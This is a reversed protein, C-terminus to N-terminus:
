PRPTPALTQTPEPTPAQTITVEVYQPLVDKVQLETLDPAGDTNITVTPRVQHTGVGLGGLDLVASIRDTQLEDLLVSPGTLIVDILPVFQSVQLGEQLRQARLPLEVTTGGTVADIGVTVLVEYPEGQPAGMVSVGEPLNLEIRAAVMRDAGTVDLDERVEVLSGLEEITAPPGVLTVTSPLVNVSSVFYGRAPQGATRVRVAVERYDERKEVLVQVRVSGPSVDVSEVVRGESDVPQLTVVRDVDARQGAVSIEGTVSVVRDIESAPGSVTAENPNASPASARYGLPIDTEGALVIEVPRLSTALREVRVTMAQPHVSVITVTPDSVVIDIPVVHVGTTLDSWDVTAVFDDASLTEWSSAFARLRVRVTEASGNMVALDDPKGLVDVPIQVPFFGESPKDTQYTANVWVILSLALALMATGIRDLMQKNM